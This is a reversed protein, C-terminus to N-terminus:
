EYIGDENQNEHAMHKEEFLLYQMWNLTTSSVSMVEKMINSLSAEFMKFIDAVYKCSNCVFLTFNVKSNFVTM